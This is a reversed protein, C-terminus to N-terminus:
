GSRPRNGHLPMSPLASAASPTSGPGANVAMKRSTLSAMARPWSCSPSVWACSWYTWVRRDRPPLPPSYAGGQLGQRSPRLVLPFAFCIIFLYFYHIFLHTQQAAGIRLLAVTAAPSTCCCSRHLGTSFSSGGCDAVELLPRAEADPQRLHLSRANTRSSSGTRRPENM